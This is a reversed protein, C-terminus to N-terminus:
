IHIIKANINRLIFSKSIKVVGLWVKHITEKSIKSLANIIKKKGEYKQFSWKIQDLNRRIKAKILAFVTEIPALEPSYPPLFVIELDEQTALKKLLKGHHISANIKSLHSKVRLMM